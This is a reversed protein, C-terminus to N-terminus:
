SGVAEWRAYLEEIRRKAEAHRESSRASSGPSAWAAPDALEEELARLASEAAEIERELERQARQANKSLRPRGNGEPAERRSKKPKAEPKPAAAAAEEARREDRAVVYEAWGGEYGRLEGDEIAFTRSGVADLLARDHSM